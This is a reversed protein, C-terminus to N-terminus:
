YVPSSEEYLIYANRRQASSVALSEASFRFNAFDKNLTGHALHQHRFQYGSGTFGVTWVEYPLKRSRLFNHFDYKGVTSFQLLSLQSPAHKKIGKEIKINMDRYLEGSVVAVM